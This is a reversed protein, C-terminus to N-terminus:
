NSPKNVKELIDDLLSQKKPSGAIRKKADAKQQKVSDIKLPEGNKKIFCDVIKENIAAHEILEFHNSLEDILYVLEWQTSKWQIPNISKVEQENFLIKFEIWSAEIYKEKLEKWLVKLQEEKGKWKFSLRKENVKIRGSIIKSLEKSYRDRLVQRDQYESFDVKQLYEMEQKAWEVKSWAEKLRKSYREEIFQQKVSQWNETTIGLRMNIKIIEESSRDQYSFLSLARTSAYIEALKKSDM